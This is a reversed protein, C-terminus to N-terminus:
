QTLKNITTQKNNNTKLCGDGPPFVALTATNRWAQYVLWCVLNLTLWWIPRNPLCFLITEMALWIKLLIKRITCEAIFNVLPESFFILKRSIGFDPRVLIESPKFLELAISGPEKLHFNSKLDQSDKNVVVHYLPM